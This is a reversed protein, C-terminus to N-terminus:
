PKIARNYIRVDDILGSFYTGSEMAKGTGIYLGGDSGQLNSQTDEAVLIDDVYLSRKEGNWVFGVRHWQGDTIVSESKLPQPISRGVAPPTLETMLCGLDPDAVLWNAGNLQSLIVQGPEEGKIWGFVSFPGDAPNLGLPALVYDDVGDFMLAGGVQGADPQWVPDGILYADCVGTSDYAIIGEAEDLAWHALLTPDDVPQKWYSM